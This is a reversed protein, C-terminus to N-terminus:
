ASSTGCSVGNAKLEKITEEKVKSKKGGAGGGTVEATDVLLVVDFTGPALSVEAGTVDDPDEVSDQTSAAGSRFGALSIM